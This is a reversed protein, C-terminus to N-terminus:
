YLCCCARGSCVVCGQFGVLNVLTKVTQKFSHKKNRHHMTQGSDTSSAYVNDQKAVGHM